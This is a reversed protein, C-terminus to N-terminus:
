LAHQRREAGFILHHIGNKGPLLAPAEATRKLRAALKALRPVASEPVGSFAFLETRGGADQVHSASVRIGLSTAGLAPSAHCADLLTALQEVHRPHTLWRSPDSVARVCAMVVALSVTAAVHGAHYPLLNALELGSVLSMLALSTWQAESFGSWYARGSDGRLFEFLFRGWGYVISYWAFANGPAEHLVIWVGAAVTGSVWAAEILQLPLLRVGELHRPLGAAV